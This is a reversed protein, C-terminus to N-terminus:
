DQRTPSFTIPSLGSCCSRYPLGPWALNMRTSQAKEKLAITLVCHRIRAWNNAGANGSSRWAEFGGALLRVRKFARRTLERALVAASVESPCDCYVIM